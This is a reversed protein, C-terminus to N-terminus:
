EAGIRFDTRVTTFPIAQRWWRDWKQLRNMPVLLTDGDNAQIQPGQMLEALTLRYTVVRNGSHRVLFIRQTNSAGVEVGRAQGLAELLTIGSEPIPISGQRRVEGFVQIMREAVAPVHLIDGDELFVDMARSEGREAAYLDLAYTTEGRTLLAGAGDADETLGRASTLLEGVTELNECLHHVGPHAIEGGLLVSRAQCEHLKVEVQPDEVIRAYREEISARIADVTMGDVPFTGVFPLFATGDERVLSGRLEGDMDIPVQSGLDPRGWVIVVLTDGPGVRYAPRHTASRTQGDASAASRHDSLKRLGDVGPYTSDAERQLPLDGLGV